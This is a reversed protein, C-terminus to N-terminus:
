GSRLLSTALPAAATIPHHQALPRHGAAAAAALVAVVVLTSLAFDVEVKLHLHGM